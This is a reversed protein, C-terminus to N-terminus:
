LVEEEEEGTRVGDQRTQGRDGELLHTLRPFTGNGQGVRLDGRQLGHERTHTLDGGPQVPPKGRTPAEAFM